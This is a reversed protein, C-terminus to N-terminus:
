IKVFKEVRNGIKIFYIGPSLNSIGIKGGEKIRGSTPSVAIGLMDFIQIDSVEDVGRKLTPSLSSIEIYDRAPNPSISFDKEGSIKSVGTTSGSPIVTVKVTDTLVTDCNGNTLSAYYYGDDSATVDKIYKFDGNENIKLTIIEKPKAALHPMYYLTGFTTDFVNYQVGILFITENKGVTVIKNKPQATIIPLVKVKLNFFTSIYANQDGSNIYDVVLYYRGEYGKKLKKFTLKNTNWGQINEDLLNFGADDFNHWQFDTFASHPKNFDVQFVVSENECKEQYQHWPDRNTFVNLDNPYTLTDSVAIGCNNRAVVWYKSNIDKREIALIGAMIVNDHVFWSYQGYYKYTDIINGDKYYDIYVTDTNNKLYLYLGVHTPTDTWTITDIRICVIEPKRDVKVNVINSLSIMNSDKIQAELRYKGADEKLIPEFFLEESYIGKLNPMNYLPKGDKYWRYEIKVNNFNTKTESKLSYNNGECAELDEIQVTLILDDSNKIIRAIRTTDIGCKGEIVAFYFTTDKLNTLKISLNNSKAGYYTENDNLLLNTKGDLIYWNINVYENVSIAEEISMGNIHADFTLVVVSDEFNKSLIIDFPQRTISTPIVVYLAAPHSDITGEGNESKIRCFYTGSNEYSVSEFSLFPTIANPILKNDKYWQYYLKLNEDSQADVSLTVQKDKCETVSKPQEIIEINDALLNNITFLISITLFLIFATFSSKM